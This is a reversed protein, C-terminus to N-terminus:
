RCRVPERAALDGYLRRLRAATISWSYRRARAAATAGMHAALDADGLLKRLPAAYEAPDRGEVLFGTEGDDVLSRLGDVAAAVVPAGCAAAELAVLGFSETHSPVICVDAARYYRALQAHPVASMFRVQEELGREAVLARLRELEREGDAGSPGGVILLLVTPDDLEGIAEIALGAGKLPQIRGAFLVVKRHNLGLSERDRTRDQDHFLRHDVGPPVVEVRDPEAGYLERLQDSEDPTSALILDSCRVVDREVSLRSASEHYGAAGKVAGLTHFTTVLPRDLEHKLRHAVAGSMWYHAHLVEHGGRELVVGANAVFEDLHGVLEDKPLPEAPGADIHVVRFGPEVTLVSPLDPSDRRVFVDCDVGAHALASALSAVYVNM